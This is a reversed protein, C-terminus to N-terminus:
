RSQKIIDNLISLYDSLLRTILFNKRVHEKGKKGMEQGLAPDKLIHVIRDAFGKTDFSDVLFGSEGDVIQLPIGGINSAVVPTEKWLAEAVTLGFGERISKQIVVKSLRQLANVLINNESTLLIVEGSKIFDNAKRHVREYISWGEPDDAAMSGCLILRCDVKKKVLRFVDIVGTPDKWRDFRSVQTILPKDTPVGFKRLTKTLDRESLEMNKHSLPDIAPYVVRQTVPLDKQRYNENSIMVLDYRLIFRKLFGWLKGNPGSLDTHCRWIWPQRKPEFRILPLPQPDHIIVCDHNIHTYVSFSENTQVYLRRKLETFNITGGQLANHFKKTVGFFDPNGQLIRWGTDIGIDNMLPVLSNLIEAVGGGQYTSNIHLIHRQYLNRASQHIATIVEDGVINHYDELSRM